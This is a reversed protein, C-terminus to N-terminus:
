VMTGAWRARRKGAPRGAGHRFGRRFGVFHRRRPLSWADAETQRPCTRRRELVAVLESSNGAAPQHLNPVDRPASAPPPKPPAKTATPAAIGTCTRDTPIGRCAGAIWGRKARPGAPPQWRRGGKKLHEACQGKKPDRFHRIPHVSAPAKKTYMAHGGRAGVASVDLGCTVRRPHRDTSVLFPTRGLRARTGSGSSRACSRRSRCIAGSPTASSPQSSM